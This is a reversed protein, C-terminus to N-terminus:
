STFMTSYKAALSGCIPLSQFLPLLIIFTPSLNMLLCLNLELYISWEDKFWLKCDHKLAAHSFVSM